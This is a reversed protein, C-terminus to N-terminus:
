SRSHASRNVRRLRFGALGGLLVALVALAWPSLAPASSAAGVAIQRVTVLHDEITSTHVFVVFRATGGQPLAGTFEIRDEHVAANPFAGTEERNSLGTFFALGDGQTSRVFSSGTGTGLEFIFGKWALDTNNLVSKDIAFEGDGDILLEIDFPGLDIRATEDIVSTVKGSQANPDGEPLSQFSNIMWNGATANQGITKLSTFEAVTFSGRTDFAAGAAPGPFFTDTFWALQTADGAVAAQLNSLTVSHRAGPFASSFPVGVNAAAFDNDLFMVLQTKDSGDTDRGETSGIVLSKIPTFSVDHSVVSTGKGPLASPYVTAHVEAGDTELILINTVPNGKSTSLHATYSVTEGRALSALVVLATASIVRIGICVKM